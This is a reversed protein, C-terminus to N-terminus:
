KQHETAFEGLLYVHSLCTESYHNLQVKEGIVKKLAKLIIAKSIMAIRAIHHLFSVLMSNVYKIEVYFYLIEM